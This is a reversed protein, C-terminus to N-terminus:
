KRIIAANLNRDSPKLAILKTLNIGFFQKAYMEFKDDQLVLNVWMQKANKDDTYSKAFYPYMNKIKTEDGTSLLILVCIVVGLAWIDAKQAQDITMVDNVLSPDRLAYSGAMCQQINADRSCALGFDIFRIQKSRVNVMINSAHIDSHAIGNDHIHQLGLIMERIISGSQERTMGTIQLMLKNLEEYNELFETAMISPSIVYKFCVIYPDCKVGLHQLISAERQLLMESEQPVNAVNYRNGPDVVQYGNAPQTKAVKVALKQGGYTIMYVTGFSGMGLINQKTEISENLMRLIEREATEAAAM